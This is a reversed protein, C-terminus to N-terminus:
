KGGRDFWVFQSDNETTGAGSRYILTNNRSVAFAARGNATNNMVADAIRVPEGTL